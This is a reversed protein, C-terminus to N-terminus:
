SDTMLDLLWVLRICRVLLTEFTLEFSQGSVNDGMCVCICVFVLLSVNEYDCNKSEFNRFFEKIKLIYLVRSHSNNVPM